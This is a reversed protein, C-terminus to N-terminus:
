PRERGRPTCSRSSANNAAVLDLLDPAALRRLRPFPAPSFEILAVDVDDAALLEGVEGLGLDRAHDVAHEPLHRDALEADADVVALHQLPQQL